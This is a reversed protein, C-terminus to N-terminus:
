KSLVCWEDQWSNGNWFHPILSWNFKKKFDEDLTLGSERTFASANWFAYYFKLMYGFVFCRTYNVAYSDENEKRYFIIGSAVLIRGMECSTNPEKKLRSIQFPNSIYSPHNLRAYSIKIGEPVSSFMKGDPTCLDLEGNNLNGEIGIVIEESSEDGTIYNNTGSVYLENKGNRNLDEIQTYYLWGPHFIKYKIRLNNDLIAICSPYLNPDTLSVVIENKGDGDVDGANVYFINTIEHVEGKFKKEVKFKIERKLILSEDKDLEYLRLRSFNKPDIIILDDAGDSNLDVIKYFFPKQRSFRCASVLTENRNFNFIFKKLLVEKGNFVKLIAINHLLKLDPILHIEKRKNFIGSFIFILFAILIVVPILYKKIDYNKIPFTEEAKIIEIEKNVPTKNNENKDKGDLNSEGKLTASVEKGDSIKKGKSGDKSVKVKSKRSRKKSKRTRIKDRNKNLWELIESKRAIVTTGRKGGVRSVPFNFRDEWRKLTKESVGVFRSIEKWGTLIDKDKTENSPNFNEEM